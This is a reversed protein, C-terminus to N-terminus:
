SAAMLTLSISPVHPTISFGPSITCSPPFLSCFASEQRPKTNYFWSEFASLSLPTILGILFLLSPNHATKKDKWMENILLRLGGFWDPLNDAKNGRPLWFHFLFWNVVEAGKGSMIFRRKTNGKNARQYQNIALFHINRIWVRGTNVGEWVLRKQAQDEVITGMKDVQSFM